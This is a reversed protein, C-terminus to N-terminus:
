VSNCNMMKALYANNPLRTLYGNDIPFQIFVHSVCIVSINVFHHFKSLYRIDRFNM